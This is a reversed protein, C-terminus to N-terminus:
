MTGDPEVGSDESDQKFKIRLGKVREGNPKQTDVKYFTVVKGIAEKPGNPCEEQVAFLNTKNCGFKKKVDERELELILTTGKDEEQSMVNVIVYEDKDNAVEAAKLWENGFALWNNTKDEM